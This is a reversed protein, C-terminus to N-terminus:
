AAKNFLNINDQIFSVFLLKAPMASSKMKVELEEINRLKKVLFDLSLTKLNKRFEIEVKFFLKQAKVVEDFNAASFEIASKAQYLKQLYSSLFRLLAIPEFNNKFLKEAQILALDFKQAAFSSIFENATIEGELGIIQDIIDLTLGKNEGLYSIIKELESKIVQRNKGLKEALYNVIKLDFKIQNKALESEIFKKIVREDDEYCAIAAFNLNDEAIKRLASSKDLDGAQVLIFNESKNACERDSLLTKLAATFNADVDKVTILKRGGLFSLSYFEDILLSNDEALRDKSINTVLFPDSLDSVIKKAIVEFRSTAVSVEPGYLLCGAIKEEAIKKIYSDIQATAIKM